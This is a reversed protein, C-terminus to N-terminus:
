DNSVEGKLNFDEELTSEEEEGFDDVAFIKADEEFYTEENKYKVLGDFNIKYLHIPNRGSENLPSNMKVYNFRDETQINEAMELIDKSNCGGRVNVSVYSKSVYGKNLVMDRIERGRLKESYSKKHNDNPKDIGLAHFLFDDEEEETKLTLAKEQLKIYLEKLKEYGVKTKIQAPNLSDESYNDQFYPTNTLINEVSVMAISYCYDFLKEMRDKNSIFKNMIKALNEVTFDKDKPDGLALNNKESPIKSEITEIHAPLSSSPINDKPLYGNEEGQKCLMEFGVITNFIRSANDMIRSAAEEQEDTLDGGYNSRFAEQYKDTIEDLAELYEINIERNLQLGMTRETILLNSPDGSNKDRIKQELYKASVEIKRLFNFYDLEEFAEKNRKKKWKLQPRSFHMILIRNMFDEQVEVTNKNSSGHMKAIDKWTGDFFYSHQIYYFIQHELEKMSKSSVDVSYSDAEDYITILHALVSAYNLESSAMKFFEKHYSLFAKNTPQKDYIRQLGEKTKGTSTKSFCSNTIFKVIRHATVNAHSKGSGSAGAAMCINSNTNELICSRTLTMANMIMYCAHFKAQNLYHQESDSTFNLQEFVKYDLKKYATCFSPPSPMLHTPKEKSTSQNSM